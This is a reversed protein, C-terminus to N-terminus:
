TRSPTPIISPEDSYLDHPFTSPVNTPRSTTTPTSPESIPTRTIIPQSPRLPISPTRPRVPRLNGDKNPAKTPYESVVILTGSPTPSITPVDATTNLFNAFYRSYVFVSANAQNYLVITVDFIVRSVEVPFNVTSLSSYKDTSDTHTIGVVPAECIDAVKVDPSSPVLLNATDGTYTDPVQMRVLIGRYTIFSANVLIQLDEDVPFDFTEATDLERGGVIVSMGGSFLDTEAIIKGPDLHSGGVAAAGGECGGAGNPFGKVSRVSILGIGGDSNSHFFLLMLLMVVHEYLSLMNIRARRARRCCSQGAHQLHLTQSLSMPVPITDISGVDCNSTSATQNKCAVTM